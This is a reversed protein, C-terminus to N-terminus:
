RTWWSMSTSQTTASEHPPLVVQKSGQAARWHQLWNRRWRPRQAMVIALIRQWVANCWPMSREYRLRNGQCTITATCCARAAMLERLIAVPTAARLQYHQEEFDEILRVMLKFLAKEEPSLEDEGKDILREVERLM